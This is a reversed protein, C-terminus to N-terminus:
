HTYRPPLEINYNYIGFPQIISAPSSVIIRTSAPLFM